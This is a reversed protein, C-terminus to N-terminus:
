KAVGAFIKDWKNNEQTLSILSILPYGIIISYYIFYYFLYSIMERIERTEKSKSM